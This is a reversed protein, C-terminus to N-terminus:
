PHLQQPGARDQALDLSRCIQELRVETHARVHPARGRERFQAAVAHLDLAPVQQVGPSLGARWGRSSRELTVVSGDDGGTVVYARKRILDPGVDALAAEHCESGIAETARIVALGEALEELHI